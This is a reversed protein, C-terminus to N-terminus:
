PAPAGHNRHKGGSGRPCLPRIGGGYDIQRMDGQMLLLKGKFAGACKRAPDISGLADLFHQSLEHPGNEYYGRCNPGSEIMAKRRQDTGQPEAIPSLLVIGQMIEAELAAIMGGMSHGIVIMATPHARRKRVLDVASRLDAQMTAVTMERFMGDSNGCGGYDFRLSSIGAAALERSMRVFLYGPGLHHGTFGHSFVCWPRSRGNGQASLM